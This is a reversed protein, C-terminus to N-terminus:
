RNDNQQTTLLVFLLYKLFVHTMESTRCVTHWLRTPEAWWVKFQEWFQLFEETPFV